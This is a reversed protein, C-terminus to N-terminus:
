KDNQWAQWISPQYGVTAKQRNRVIPTKFLLPEALLEEELSHIIYKLNKQQYAKSNTDILNDLGIATKVSNLEGKSLGKIALDIFQFTIRREKFYREAKKTEQCKKTGFIQINM